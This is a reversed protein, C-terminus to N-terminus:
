KLRATFNNSEGRKVFDLLDDSLDSVKIYPIIPGVHFLQFLYILEILGNREKAKRHRRFFSAIM